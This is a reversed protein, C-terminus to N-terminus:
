DQVDPTDRSRIYQHNLCADQLFVSLIASGSSHSSLLDASDKLYCLVTVDARSSPSVCTAQSSNFKGLGKCVRGRGLRFCSWEM